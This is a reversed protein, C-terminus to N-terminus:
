KKEELMKNIINEYFLQTEYNSSKIKSKLKDEREKAQNYTDALSKNFEDYHMKLVNCFEKYCYTESLDEENIGSLDINKFFKKMLFFFEKRYKADVVTFRHFIDDILWSIVSLKIEEFYNLRKLKEYVFEVIFIRDFIKSGVASMTSDIRNIRYFYFCDRIYTIKEANLWIDYFFLLDEYIFNETFKICNKDLFEKRYLKNWIATNIKGTLFDKTDNHNFVKNDFHNPILDLSYYKNSFDCNQFLEDYLVTGCFTIDTQNKEAEEYMKSLMDDRIWDDADVFGIYKGKAIELGRNRAYAQGYNKKLSIVKIRKDKDAYKEITELSGDTSGDDICILEFNSFTQKLVSEIAVTLHYKVNFVPMIISIGLVESVDPQKIM